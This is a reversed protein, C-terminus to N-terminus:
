WDPAFSIVSLGVVGSYYDCFLFKGEDLVQIVVELESPPRFTQSKRFLQNALVVRRVSRMDCWAVESGRTEPPRPAARCGRPNAAACVTGNTSIVVGMHTFPHLMWSVCPYKFNTVQSRAFLGDPQQVFIQVQPTPSSNYNWLAFTNPTTNPKAMASHGGIGDHPRWQTVIGTAGDIIAIGPRGKPSGILFLAATSITNVIYESGDSFNLLELQGIHHVPPDNALRTTYLPAGSHLDLASLYAEGHVDTSALYIRNGGILRPVFELVAGSPFATTRSWITRGDQLSFVLNCIQRKERDVRLFLMGNANVLLSKVEDGDVLNQLEIRQAPGIGKGYDGGGTLRRWFVVGYDRPAWAVYGGKASYLPVAAEHTLQEVWTARGCRYAHHQYAQRKFELLTDEPSIGGKGEGGGFYGVDYAYPFHGHLLTRRLNHQITAKWLRSVASCRVIDPASLFAIIQSICLDDLVSLPDDRNAPCTEIAHPKIREAM